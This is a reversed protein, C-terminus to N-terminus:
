LCKDVGARTDADATPVRGGDFTRLCLKRCCGAVFCNDALYRVDRYGRVDAADNFARHVREAADVDENVIGTDVAWFTTEFIDVPGGPFLGDADVEESRHQRAPSEDRM